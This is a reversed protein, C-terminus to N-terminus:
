WGSMLGALNTESLGTGSIAASKFSMQQALRASFGDYIGPQILIEPAENLQRCRQTKTTM